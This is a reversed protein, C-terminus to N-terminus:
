AKRCEIYTLQFSAPLVTKKTITWGHSTIFGAYSEPSWKHELPFGALKMLGARLRGTLGMKAHTFTPAILIGGPALVRSIESLAKEPDDIIHLVNAAIVVDFSGSTYPLATMDQVSFHLKASHCDKKAMAIMEPSFDCAEVSEAASVINKSILGTGCALELVNKDTVVPRILEYMRRYSGTDKKMFGDYIGAYKSWFSKKEAKDNMQTDELSNAEVLKYDSLILSWM